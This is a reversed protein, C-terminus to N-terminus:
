GFFFFGVSDITRSHRDGVVRVFSSRYIYIYIYINTKIGPTFFSCGSVSRVKLPFKRVAGKSKSVSIPVFVISCSHFLQQSV